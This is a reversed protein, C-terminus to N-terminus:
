AIDLNDMAPYKGFSRLLVMLSASESTKLDASTGLQSNMMMMMVM